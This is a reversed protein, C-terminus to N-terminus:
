LKKMNEEKHFFAKDLAEIEENSCKERCLRESEKSRKLMDNIKKCPFEGCVSCKTVCHKKICEVLGYTCTKHSRCGGCRIEDNSLIKSSFGLRFWLEAVRRLEDDTKATRRPCFECNDGCLTLMESSNKHNKAIIEAAEKASISDTAIKETKLKKYLPIRVVSRAIVDPQRKGDAVDKQLRQKLAEEDAVLTFIKVEYSETDLKSLLEDIIVQEHLVWCFIINKFESCKLFSNLLFTINEMVMAKTEDTVKFPSMDWCWDGDLFVNDPLLKQLERCVTTKGVGMTGNIIYLKKM